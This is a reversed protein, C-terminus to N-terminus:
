FFMLVECVGELEGETLPLFQKVHVFGSYCMKM